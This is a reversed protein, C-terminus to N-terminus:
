QDTQEEDSAPKEPTPEGVAKKLNEANGNMISLWDGSEPANGCPDVVLSSIGLAKLKDVSETAPEGEWIMWKAPHNALKGQLEKMAEEDPVTEPEWLVSDINIDYRRAFYQYVPHSAMFPKEALDKGLQKFTSHLSELDTALSDFNEALETEKEPLLQVLAAHVEEAQWLAQQFDMWTTFATGGHSHAEEGPGHSHTVGHESELFEGSFAQTTDVVTSNPLTVTEKWKEYSAGNMLILDASQFALIDDDTPNWFAPDGKGEALFELDIFDGAIRNAFYALPYNTAQVKPPGDQNSASEPAEKESCSILLAALIATIAQISTPLFRKM